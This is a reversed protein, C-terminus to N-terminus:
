IKKGGCPLSIYNPPPLRLKKYIDSMKKNVEKPLAFDNFVKCKQNRLVFFAGQASFPSGELLQNVALYTVTAIFTLMLHGRFTEENHIRLPLLAVNNKDIDFVQEVVQRSYYLPMVEKTELMESSILIFLGETKLIHDMETFSVDANSISSKMYRISEENHREWDIAVYAYGVHGFLDIDVRKISLPHERQLVLYKSHHLDDAHDAIIQKYLKRNPILRTLFPIKCESKEDGYLAVINDESYYGADVITYNVDIGYASLEAITSRLTTVDVINRANYRFFLPMNSNRDIVLILRAENSTVGNHTNIATLPFHIDNPLGTSDILIGSTKSKCFHDLYKQFFDRQVAEDGLMTYFESIRQSQLRAHPFLLSTYSGVWLDEAYQNSNCALVKYGLLAMLTDAHNPLLHYVIDYLGWIELAKYLCYADGFDLILKEHSSPIDLLDVEMEEPLVAYGKELSYVFIGRQKNKYIGLERNMVRGLYEPSNIKKGNLKQPTYVSAYEIENKIDYHIFRNAM